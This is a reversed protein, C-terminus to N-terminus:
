EALVFAPVFPSLWAAAHPVSVGVSGWPVDLEPDQAGAFSGFGQLFCRFRLHQMQRESSSPKEVSSAKEDAGAM